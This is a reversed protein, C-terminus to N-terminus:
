KEIGKFNNMLQSKQINFKKRLVPNSEYQALFRTIATDNEIGELVKFDANINILEVKKQSTQAPQDQVLDDKKCSQILLATCCVLLFSLKTLQKM